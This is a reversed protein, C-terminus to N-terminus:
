PKLPVYRYSPPTARAYAILAATLKKPDSYFCNSGVVKPRLRSPLEVRRFDGCTPQWIRYGNADKRLLAYYHEPKGSEVIRAYVTFLGKSAPFVSFSAPESENDPTWSYVRGEIQLAGERQKTWRGAKREQQEYRGAPAPTVAAAPDFLPRESVVCGGLALVLLGVALIKTARGQM